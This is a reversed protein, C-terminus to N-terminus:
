ALGGLSVLKTELYDELGEKGCERGMGSQKWGAFPAEIASPTWDNIGVIGFELGEALRLATKLDNTFAYAALGYPTANALRLVEDTSDFPTVPLVPGFIEENFLRTEPGVESVVTPLYFYGREQGDPRKGGTLVRGGQRLAEAVLSEVRDRQRASILPGVQSASDSGPGVKLEAMLKAVGRAFRDAVSRHVIFRQPSVCVQGVNRCKALPAASMVADLDADPFVIVPANGGLELGLRTVTRSAGDMLLRGVRTSGTFSIKRCIPNNLMEQGMAEPDGNVLNMVGAPIGAEAMLSVMEMATLPTLESPRGVVACGAALAASWCRAPNYAPFNWATITGVVGLPQKLVVIRRDARRSPQTYGHARKGEEAYWDFLAAAALWDGRADAQTKGSEAVNTYLLQEVRERILQATKALISGREWATKAGWGPLAREAAQLAKRVDGAGGFPVECVPQETAPNVVTNTSGDLADCWHGDIFQRYQYTTM